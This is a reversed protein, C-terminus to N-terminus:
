TGLREFRPNPVGVEADAPPPGAVTYGPALPMVTGAFYSSPTKLGRWSTGILSPV